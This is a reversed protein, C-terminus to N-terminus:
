SAQMSLNQNRGYTFLNRYKTSLPQDVFCDIWVGVTVGTAISCKEIDRFNAELKTIDRWWFSGRASFLHPVKQVYCSQWILNVWPIDEQNNFKHLHKMLLADNQLYLDKVGPGGKYKPITVAEWAALNYGKASIDSGRWLCNKEINIL